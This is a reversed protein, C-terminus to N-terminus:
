LWAAALVLALTFVSIFLSACAGLALPRLGMACLRSVDTQLGMAALGFALLIQSALMAHSTIVEPVLGTSSLLVVAAFAAVFWPFPASGQKHSFRGLLLVMPALMAVRTLKTVTAFLTAEPGAQGGAAVAQAVEHISAGSWLGFDHPSLGSGLLPYLLMAATGFVTVCAVAYAVDEDRARIMTNVGLVASAGCISTGAAILQSLAPSVSLARGLRVTFFYTAILGLATIALGDAGIEAIQRLTLQFGLVVIGLRLLRRMAFRLGEETGSVVGATNRFLIGAMIALVLPSVVHLAPSQRAAFAAAVLVGCLLLGKVRSPPSSVAITATM